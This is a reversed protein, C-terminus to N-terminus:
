RGPHADVLGPPPRASVGAPDLCQPRSLRGQRIMSPTLGILTELIALRSWSAGLASHPCAPGSVTSRSPWQTLTCSEQPPSAPTVRMESQIEVVKRRAIFECARCNKQRESNSTQAIAHEIRQAEKARKSCEQMIITRCLDSNRYTYIIDQQRDTQRDIQPNFQSSM